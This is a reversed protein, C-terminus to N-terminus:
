KRGSVWVPIIVRPNGQQDLAVPLDAVHKFDAPVEDTLAIQPRFREWGDLNLYNKNHHWRRIVFTFHRGGLGLTDATDGVITLSDEPLAAAIDALAQSAQPITYRLHTFYFGSKAVNLGVIAALVVTAPLLFRRDPLWRAAVLLVAFAAGSVLVWAVGAATPQGVAHPVGFAGRDRLELLYNVVPTRCAFGVAIAVIAALVIRMSWQSRGTVERRSVLTLGSRALELGVLVSAAPLMPLYRRDEDFHSRVGITLLGLVLWCWALRTTSDVGRRWDAAQRLAVLIVAALLLPAHTVFQSTALREGGPRVGITAIGILPAQHSTLNAARKAEDAVVAGSPLVLMWWAAGLVFLSGAGFGLLSRWVTRRAHGAEPPGGPSLWQWAWYAAFVIGFSLASIKALIALGFLVGGALAWWSQRASAAVALMSATLLASQFSEVFAVRNYSLWLFNSGLLLAAYLAARRGHLRRIFGYVLLCSAVGSAAALARTQWLGHGLFEYISRLAGSYLPSWMLGANHEDMIWRGFVVHQRANHAWWGEDTVFHTSMDPPPDAELCMFRSAILLSVLALGFPWGRRKSSQETAAQHAPENALMEVSSM